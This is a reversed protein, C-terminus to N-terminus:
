SDKVQKKCDFGYNQIKFVGSIFINFFITSVLNNPTQLLMALM